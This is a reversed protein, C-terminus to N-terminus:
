KGERQRERERERRIVHMYLDITIGCFLSFSVMILNHYNMNSVCLTFELKCIEINFALIMKRKNHPENFCKYVLSFCNALGFSNRFDQIKSTTYVKYTRFLLYM